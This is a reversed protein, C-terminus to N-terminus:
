QKVQKTKKTGSLVDNLDMNDAIWQSIETFKEPNENLWDRYEEYKISYDRSSGVITFFIFDITEQLGPAELSHGYAKEFMTFAEFNFKLTIEKDGIKVIM